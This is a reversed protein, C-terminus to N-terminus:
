VELALSIIKGWLMDFAALIMSAVLICIIVVTTSKVVDERAPWTVKKLESVVEELVQNVRGHKLLIVFLLFGLVVPGGERIAQIGPLRRVQYFSLYFWGISARSMFWFLGSCTLYFGVILKRNDM